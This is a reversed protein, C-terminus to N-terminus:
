REFTFSSSGFSVRVRNGTVQGMYSRVSSGSTETFEINSGDVSFLGSRVDSAGNAMWDVDYVPITNDTRLRLRGSTIGASPLAAGDVEILTYTGMVSSSTPLDNSSDCGLLPALIM